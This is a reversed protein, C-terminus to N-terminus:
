CGEQLRWAEDASKEAKELGMVVERYFKRQHYESSFFDESSGNFDFCHKVAKAYADGGFVKRLDCRRRMEHFSDHDRNVDGSSTERLQPMEQLYALELLIISLRLIIAPHSQRGAALGLSEHQLPSGHNPTRTKVLHVDLLPDLLWGQARELILIDNTQLPRHQPWINPSLGLVSRVIRKALRICILQLGTSSVRKTDSQSDRQTRIWDLLRIPQADWAELTDRSPFELECSAEGREHRRPLDAAWRNTGQSLSELCSTGTPLPLPKLSSQSSPLSKSSSNRSRSGGEGGRGHGQYDTALRVHQAPDKISSTVSRNRRYPHARQSYYPRSTGFDSKYNRRIPMRPSMAPQLFGSDSKPYPSPIPSSRATYSSQSPDDTEDNRVVARACFWIRDPGGHDTINKREISIHFKVGQAELREIEELELHFYFHHEPHVPCVQGLQQYLSASAHRIMRFSQLVVQDDDSDEDDDSSAGESSAAIPRGMETLEEFKRELQSITDSIVRLEDRFSDLQQKVNDTGARRRTRSALKQHRKLLSHLKHPGVQEVVKDLKQRFVILSEKVIGLSSHLANLLQPLDDPMSDSAHGRWYETEDRFVLEQIKVTAIQGQIQAWIDPIFRRYSELVRAIANQSM